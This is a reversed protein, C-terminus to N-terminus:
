MEYLATVAPDDPLEDQEWVVDFDDRVNVRDVRFSKVSKFFGTSATEQFWTASCWPYNAARAVLGHRVPNEIVYNLRALYSKEFTLHTDWYQFWVRRGKAGDLQNIALATKSHLEQILKKLSTSGSSSVAIVHYHNSFVAWTQVQWAHDNMHSLLSNQLLALRENTRFLHLTQYTGATIM